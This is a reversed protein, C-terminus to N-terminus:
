RNLNYYDDSLKKSSEGRKWRIRLNANKLSQLLISTNLWRRGSTFIPTSLSKIKTKTSLRLILDLDEMLHIPKYGGIEKYLRKSILLGQDGYPKGLVQSRISVAIELLRLSPRLGQVKLNFFWASLNSNQSNIITKVKQAWNRPLRSDAHLFLLWDGLAKSAGQQLQFGRNKKGLDIVKAGFCKSIQTTLDSSGADVVILETPEPWLQLDALLLPLSSAENLTPIIISLRPIKTLSAM